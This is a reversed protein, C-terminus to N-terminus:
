EKFHVRRGSRLKMSDDEDESDSNEVIKSAQDVATPSTENQSKIQDKEENLLIANEFTQTKKKYKTNPLPQEEEITSLQSNIQIHQKKNKLDKRVTGSNHKNTHPFTAETQLNPQNISPPAHKKGSGSPLDKRHSPGPRPEYETSDPDMWEDDENEEEEENLQESDLGEDDPDEDEDNEHETKAFRKNQKGSYSNEYLEIGPPINLEDLRLIEDFDTVVLDKFDNILIRKIERPLDNFAPDTGKYKKLDDKSVLTKFNDALRM